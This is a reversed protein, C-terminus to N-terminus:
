RMGGVLDAAIADRQRRWAVFLPRNSMAKWRQTDFFAHPVIGEYPFLFILLEKAAYGRELWGNAADFDGCIAYYYGLETAGPGGRGFRSALKDAFGKADASRGNVVAIQLRCVNTEDVDNHSALVTEAQHALALNGSRAAATCLFEEAYPQNPALALASRAAAVTDEYRAIHFLAAAVDLRDVFALPDLKAAGESAERALEPFNMFQYFRFLKHLVQANHPNIALMKHADNTASKWDLEHLALDLHEGLANLNNADLALARALSAHAAPILDKREPHLDAARIEAGALAAYGDAFDPALRTVDAFLQLAAQTGERTQPAFLRKGMLYESYAKGDITRPSNSMTATEPLLTHTLASTIAAAIQDQVVLVDTLETDFHKSWLDYGANADILQATIRLHDGNARVSGELVSRVGLARAITRIDENKGKFAFSSTHAAVLLAPINALDNILEESIGDSFYEKSPDGSMNVFPLVAISNREPASAALIAPHSPSASFRHVRWIVGSAIVLVAALGALMARVPIAPIQTKKPVAVLATPDGSVGPVLERLSAVIKQWGPHDADGHWGSLDACQIQNFPLPPMTGDLSLQILRGAQRAIDAEARVWQSKLSDASWIVVVAGASKLREEIVEAYARHAPLADDRWIGYGLARLTEAIRRADTENPRAYSIFVDSLARGLQRL